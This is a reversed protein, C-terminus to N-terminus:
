AEALFGPLDNVTIHREEAKAILKERIRELRGLKEVAVKVLVKQKKLALLAKKLAGRIQIKLVANIKATKSQPGSPKGSRPTPKGGLRYEAAVLKLYWGHKLGKGELIVATGLGSNRLEHCRRTQFTM